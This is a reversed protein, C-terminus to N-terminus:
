KFAVRKNANTSDTNATEAAIAVLPINAGSDSHAALAYSDDQPALLTTWATMNADTFAIVTEDLTRANLVVEVGLANGVVGDSEAAVFGAFANLNATAPKEIAQGLGDESDDATADQDYCMAYGELLTDTGFYMKVIKRPHSGGSYGAM